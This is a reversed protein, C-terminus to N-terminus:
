ETNQNCFSGNLVACFHVTDISVADTKYILIFRYVGGLTGAVEKGFTLIKVTVISESLWGFFINKM